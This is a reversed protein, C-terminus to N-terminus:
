SGRRELEEEILAILSNISEKDTSAKGKNTVKPPYLGFRDSDYLIEVMDVTSKINPPDGGEESPALAPHSYLQAYLVDMQEQLKEGVGDIADRSIRMGNYEVQAFSESLPVMLNEMTKDSGKEEILALLKDYIRLTYHADLANGRICDDLSMGAWDFTKNNKVSLM